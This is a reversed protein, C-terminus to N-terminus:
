YYNNLQDSNNSVDSLEAVVTELKNM